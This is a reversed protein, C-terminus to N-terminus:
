KKVKAIWVRTMYKPNIIESDPIKSVLYTLFKEFDKMGLQVQIDNASRWVNIYREKTMQEECPFEQFMVNDFMNTSELKDKLKDTFESYGSSIRKITPNLKIIQNEIEEFISGNEIIRPHWLAVFIGNTKLIRHIEKVALSFNAYHLASAMTVIDISDSNLGTDEAKGIRWSIDTLVGPKKIGYSIMETSPEIAIISGLKFTSVLRTWVGTGAGIDALNISNMETDINQMIFDLSLNSYNPRNEDYYKAINDFEGLRLNNIRM